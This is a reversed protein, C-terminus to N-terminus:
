VNISAQKSMSCFEHMMIDSLYVYARASVSCVFRVRERLVFVCARAPVVCMHLCLVYSCVCVCVCVFPAFFLVCEELENGIGVNTQVRNWSVMIQVCSRKNQNKKNRKEKRKKRKKLTQLPSSANYLLARFSYLRLLNTSKKLTTALSVLEGSAATFVTM